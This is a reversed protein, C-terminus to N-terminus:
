DGLKPSTQRLNPKPSVIFIQHDSWLHKWWPATCRAESRGMPAGTTPDYQVVKWVIKMPWGCAPCYVPLDAVSAVPTYPNVWASM